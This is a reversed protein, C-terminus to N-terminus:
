QVVAFRVHDRLVPQLSQAQGYRPPYFEPAGGPIEAASYAASPIYRVGAPVLAEEAYDWIKTTMHGGMTALVIDWPAKIKKWAIALVPLAVGLGLNLWTSPKSVLTATPAVVKDVEIWARELGKAVHQSGIIIGVDKGRMKVNEVLERGAGTSLNTARSAAFSPRGPNDARAEDLMGQALKCGECEMEITTLLMNFDPNYSPDRELKKREDRVLDAHHPYEQALEAEAEAMHGRAYHIHKPYGHRSEHLLISAQSLHKLGCDVCTPRM